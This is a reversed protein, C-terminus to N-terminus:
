PRQRFTLLLFFKPQIELRDHMAALFEIPVAGAFESAIRCEAIEREAVVLVLEHRPDNDLFRGGDVFAKLGVMTKSVADAELHNDISREDVARNDFPRYFAEPGSALRIPCIGIGNRAFPKRDLGLRLSEFVM